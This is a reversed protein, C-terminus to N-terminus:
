HAVKRSAVMATWAEGIGASHKFRDLMLMFNLISTAFGVLCDLGAVFIHLEQVNREKWLLPIGPTEVSSRGTGASFVSDPLWSEFWDQIHCLRVAAWLRCLIPLASLPWQGVPTADGGEEPIM